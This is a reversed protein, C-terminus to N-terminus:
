VITRQNLVSEDTQYLHSMKNPMLTNPQDLLMEFFLNARFALRFSSCNKFFSMKLSLKTRLVSESLGYTLNIGNCKRLGKCNWICSNSQIFIPGPYNRQRVQGSPHGFKGRPPALEAMM